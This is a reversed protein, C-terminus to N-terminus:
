AQLLCLFCCPEVEDKRTLLTVGIPAFTLIHHTPTLSYEEGPRRMLNPACTNLKDPTISRCETTGWYLVPWAGTYIELELIMKGKKDTYVSLNIMM